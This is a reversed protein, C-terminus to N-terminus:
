HRARLSLTGRDTVTGDSDGLIGGDDTTTEDSDDSTTEDPGDDTTTEDSDDSATENPGDDTTTGDTTTGDLIGGDSEDTTTTDDTATSGEGDGDTAGEGEASGTGGGEGFIDTEVAQEYDLPDLPVRVTTGAALEARAYFEIRLESVQDNRLHLVWWDDLRDNDIVTTLELTETTGPEVVYSGASTGNGVPVTANTREGAMTITYGVESLVIPYPKPNYVTFSTELPTVSRNVDGWHGSTENVYMVPDDVGPRDANVARTETRNFASLVDTTVPREVTPAGFSRGVLWSHATARVTLTSREGNAVHSAWWAPIRDNDMHTVFALSSNGRPVSVGSKTGNALGIGNMEVAYDVTLGGLTVGIPNPNHVSLRSDVVTTTENVGGFGNDVGTVSPAGLVGLLFAGGVAGALLVFATLSARLKSGLLWERVDGTDM